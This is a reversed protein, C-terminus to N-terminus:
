FNNQEAVSVDCADTRSVDRFSFNVCKRLASHFFKDKTREMNGKM